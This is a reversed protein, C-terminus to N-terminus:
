GWIEPDVEEITRDPVRRPRPSRGRTPTAPSSGRPADGSANREVVLRLAQRLLTAARRSYDVEADFAAAKDIEGAAMAEDRGARWALEQSSEHRILSLVRSVDNGCISAALEPTVSGREDADLQALVMGANDAASGRSSADRAGTDGAGQDRGEEVVEGAPSSRRVGLREVLEPRVQEVTEAMMALLGRLQDAAFPWAPLDLEAMVSDGALRFRMFRVRQNLLNVEVLARQRDTVDAGIFGFLEVVPADPPVRVFLLSEGVPVPIDGDDDHVPPKGFYPTLAADVLAVLEDHGGHPYTAVPEDDQVSAPEVTREDASQEVPADPGEDVVDGSLLAPHAIGFVDRLGRTALVAVRDAESQVADAYYNVSGNDPEQDLSYTPAAYGMEEVARMGAVDLQWLPSLVHNSSLEARLMGDGWACFQVYPTCGEALESASMVEVLVIDGDEMEALEDALRAQFRMWAAAISGDGTFPEHDTMAM